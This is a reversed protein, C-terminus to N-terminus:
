KLYKEQVNPELQEANKNRRVVICIGSNIESTLRLCKWGSNLRCWLWCGSNLRSWWELMCFWRGSNLRCWCRYALIWDAGVGKLWFEIPVVTNVTKCKAYNIGLRSHKSEFACVRFMLDVGCALGFIESICMLLEKLSFKRNESRQKRYENKRQKAGRM